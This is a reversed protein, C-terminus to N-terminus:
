YGLLHLELKWSLKKKKKKPAFRFSVILELLAKANKINGIGLVLHPLTSM